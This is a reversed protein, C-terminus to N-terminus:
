ILNNQSTIPVYVITQGYTGEGGHITLRGQIVRECLPLRSAAAEFIDQSLRYRLRKNSQESDTSSRAGTRSMEDCTRGILWKKARSRWDVRSDRGLGAAEFSKYRGKTQM